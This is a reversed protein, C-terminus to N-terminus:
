AARQDVDIHGPEKKRIPAELSFLPDGSSAGAGEPSDTIQQSEATDATAGPSDPGSKQPPLLKKTM